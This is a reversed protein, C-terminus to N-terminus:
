WTYCPKTTRVDMRAKRAVRQMKKNYVNKEPSNEMFINNAMGTDWNINDLTTGTDSKSGMPNIQVFEWDTFIQSYINGAIYNDKAFLTDMCCRQNLILQRQSLFYTTYHRKMPKLESRVNDQTTHQLNRKAKDIGVGWKQALIDDSIGRHQKDTYTAYVSRTTTVMVNIKLRDLM